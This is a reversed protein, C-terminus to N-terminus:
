LLKKDIKTELDCCWCKSEVLHPSNCKRCKVYVEFAPNAIYLKWEDAFLDYTKVGTQKSKIMNFTDYRRAM